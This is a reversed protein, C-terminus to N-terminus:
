SDTYTMRVRYYYSEGVTLGSDTYSTPIDELVTPSAMKFKAIASYSTSLLRREVIISDIKADRNTWSVLVNTDDVITCAFNGPAKDSYHVLIDKIEDWKRTQREYVKFDGGNDWVQFAFGHSLAQEVYSAYHKMRSNYDCAKVAGFEGLNVPVQKQGSWASVSNFKSILDNINSQSGWTGIGDLAFTSPDYSHFYGIVYPDNPVAAAILEASNSWNHGSFCVIRTPNTKRIIGLVRQNLDNVNDLSLGNPENIMEFILKESKDKFRVSIQSWISDFRAKNTNNYNQKIWDDHHSNIIVFLGRELAWDVVQEIRVMRTENITYPSTTGTYPDWRVPIRVCNFGAAKFDDFYYEQILPNGWGTETPAELTNGINIGRGMQGITEKPTIQSKANLVCIMGFVLFTYKTQM